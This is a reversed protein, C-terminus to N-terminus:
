SRFLQKFKSILMVTCNSDTRFRFNTKLKGKSHLLLVPFMLKASLSDSLHESQLSGTVSEGELSTFGWYAQNNKVSFHHLVYHGLVELDQTQSSNMFHVIHSGESLKIDIDRHTTVGRFPDSETLYTKPLIV